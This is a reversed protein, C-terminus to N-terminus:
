NNLWPLRVSGNDNVYKSSNTEKFNQINTNKRLIMGKGYSGQILSGFSVKPNVRSIELIGVNIEDFGLFENTYNDILKKGKVFVNYIDGEKLNGQGIIANGNDSIDIITLPYINNLLEENIKTSIEDIIFDNEMKDTIIELNFTNSWKIQGTRLSLIKYFISVDYKINVNKSSTYYNNIDKVAEINFKNITGFLIYDAGLRKQLKNLEMPDTNGNKIFAIENEYIKEDVRSLVAFKRSQVMKSSIKQNLQNYISNDINYDGKLEFPYYSLKIRNNSNIGPEKYKIINSSVTVNWVSQNKSKDIIKYDKVNGKTRSIIDNKFTEKHQLEENEYTYKEVSSISFKKKSDYKIGNTQRIAQELANYIAEQYTTGSGETEKKIIDYSSAFSITVGLILIGLIKKM